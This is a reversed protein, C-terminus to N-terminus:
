DSALGAEHLASRTKFSVLWLRPVPRGWGFAFREQRLFAAWLWASCVISSFSFILCAANLPTKDTWCEMGPLHEFGHLLHAEASRKANVRWPLPLISRMSYVFSSPSTTLSVKDFTHLVLLGDPPLLGQVNLYIDLEGFFETWRM